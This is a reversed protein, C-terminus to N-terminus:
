TGKTSSYIAFAKAASGLLQSPSHFFDTRKMFRSGREISRLLPFEPKTEFIASDLAQNM